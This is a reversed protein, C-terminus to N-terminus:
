IEPGNLDANCRSRDYALKALIDRVQDDPGLHGDVFIVSEDETPREFIELQSDLMKESMFHGKRRMLRERLVSEELEALVFVVSEDHLRLLNRYKKKLASCSVVVGAKKHESLVFGVNSLFGFRDEDNLPQGSSMKELNSQPHLDDGEVFNLRLARALGKGLTSKGSGCVGIVVVSVAM